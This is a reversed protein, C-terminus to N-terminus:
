FSKNLPYWRFMQKKVAGLACMSLVCTSLLSKKSKNNIEFCFCRVYLNYFFFKNLTQSVM